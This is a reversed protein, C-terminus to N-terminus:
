CRVRANYRGGNSGLETAGEREEVKDCRASQGRGKSCRGEHVLVHVVFGEFGCRNYWSGPFSERSIKIGDARDDENMAGDCQLDRILTKGVLHVITQSDMAVKSSILTGKQQRLALCGTDLLDFM